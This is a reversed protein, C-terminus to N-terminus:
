RMELGIHLSQLTKTRLSHVKTINEVSAPSRGIRSILWEVAEVMLLRVNSILSLSIYIYTLYASLRINSFRRSITFDYSSDELVVGRIYM